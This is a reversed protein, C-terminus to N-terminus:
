IFFSDDLLSMDLVVVGDSGDVVYAKTGDSSLTVGLARGATDFSGLQTKKNLLPIKGQYIIDTYYAFNNKYHLTLSDKDSVPNFSLVDATTANTIVNKAEESLIQAFSNKDFNNSLYQYVREYVLESALTVRFSSSANKFDSGKAIARITGKNPTASADLNGDDNSDWYSGGKVKYLYFTEDDLENLHASFKGIEDLTNGAETVESWLLTISGNDEVKYISVNADVLNGLQAIAFTEKVTVTRKVAEAANGATDSVNYTVTYTGATNTDVTSSVTIDATINGDKNDTATAGADTYTEGVTLTVDGGNLTIVPKQTDAEIGLADALAQIEATTDVDEKTLNEVATNIEELNAVTIGTVGADLYDQLTPINVGNQAYLSIKDIAVDRASEAATSNDAGPGGCWLSDVYAVIHGFCRLTYIKKFEDKEKTYYIVL